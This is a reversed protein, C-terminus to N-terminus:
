RQRLIAAAIALSQADTLTEHGPMETGPIGYKSIRALAVLQLSPDAAAEAGPIPPSVPGAALAAFQPAFPRGATGSHCHACFEGYLQSGDLRRSEAMAATSPQWSRMWAARQAAAGPAHLSSLYAVLAAGRPSSFLGAYSPMPSGPSLARPDELHLQLWLPTRRAGVQALDPGQRRNGILPPRQQRIEALSSAPGWLAVDPSDPRVYQSHCHICGEAIYVQRGQEVLPVPQQTPQRQLSWAVAMGALILALQAYGPASLRLPFVFLLCAALVFWGPVHHLNQAMGIGLASGMWGAVAYLAGARRGAAPGALLLAPTAVLAVSYLSVGVPYLLAALGIMGPHALALCALGLIGLALSLTIRLGYRQLLWVALLAAALHLGGTRMLHLDGSWTGAKLVPSNQIIYFAASDLWVLATFWVVLWPFPPLMHPLASTAPGVRQMATPEPYLKSLRALVAAAFCLLAAVTAIGSASAQFLPPLNCVLYGLGTGWGVKWLPHGPGTWRPLHTVLTVTLLGLALGIGAAVMAALVPTLPLMTLVAAFGCGWFALQLRLRPCSWRSVRPVLLSIGVGGLAMAGMVPRLMPQTLGLEALRRLFGFQAFILFYVYTIAVFLTGPLAALVSDAVPTRDQSREAM